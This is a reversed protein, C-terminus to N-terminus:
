VPHSLFNGQKLILPKLFAQNMYEEAAQIAEIWDLGFAMFSAIASSLMCGSGHTNLNTMKKRAWACMKEGDFYFDFVKKGDKGHGGKLLIRSPYLAHMKALLEEGPLDKKIGCLLLAEPINPTILGAEPLINRCYSQFAEKKLLGPGATANMLPDIVVPMSLKKLTSVVTSFLSADYLMGIKVAKIDYNLLLLDLQKKLLSPSVAEAHNMKGPVQSTLASIAGVPHAGLAAVVRIDSAYGAHGSPDFGSIVLVSPIIKKKSKSMPM